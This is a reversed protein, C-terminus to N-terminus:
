KIFRPYGRYEEVVQRIENLNARRAVDNDLVIQLPNRQSQYQPLQDHFPKHSEVYLEGRHWGFKYPQNVIRVPTDLSVKSYLEEIDEPFLRICGSSSRKGISSPRNTGHILYGTIGLHLAYKGLPNNPGPPVVEPLYIRQEALSERISEPVHWVPNESTFVIKTEATPTQWGARGVGIPYTRVVNDGPPYYYLRKEPLNIVIGERPADPLVFASPIIVKTWARLRGPRLKPNARILEDFGIDYRRGLTQLSDGPEVHVTNIDGVINNGQQPLPFTLASATQWYCVFSLAFLNILWKWSNNMM